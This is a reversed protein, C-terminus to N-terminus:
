GHGVNEGYLLKLRCTAAFQFMDYDTGTGAHDVADGM